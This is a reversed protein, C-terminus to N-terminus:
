PEMRPLPRPAGNLALPLPPLQLTFLAPGDNDAGVRASRAEVSQLVYNEVMVAGARYPRAPKGDVSILAAGRGLDDAVVGLLQFRSAAQPQAAATQVTPQAGLIRAVAGTDLQMAPATTVVPPSGRDAPSLLRLSWFAVSAAAAMWVVTTTLALPWRSSAYPVAM